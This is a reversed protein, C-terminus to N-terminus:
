PLLSTFSILKIIIDPLHPKIHVDPNSINDIATLFSHSIQIISENTSAHMLALEICDLCQSISEFRAKTKEFPQVPLREGFEFLSTALTNTFNAVKSSPISTKLFGNAM